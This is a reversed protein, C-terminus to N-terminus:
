TQVRPREGVAARVPCQQTHKDISEVKEKMGSFESKMGSFESRVVDLAECLEKTLRKTESKTRLTESLSEALRAHGAELNNQGSRLDGLMADQASLRAPSDMIVPIAKNLKALGEIAERLVKWLKPLMLIAGGVVTIFGAIGSVVVFFRPFSRSPDDM